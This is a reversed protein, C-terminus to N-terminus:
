LHVHLRGGAVGACPYLRPHASLWTAVDVGSGALDKFFAVNAPHREPWRHDGSVYARVLRLLPRRNTRIDVSPLLANLLDENVALDAPLPVALHELHARYCSQVVHEAVILQAEATVQQLHEGAEKRVSALVTDQDALRARLNAARSMLGSHEPRKT